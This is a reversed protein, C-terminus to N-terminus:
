KQLLLKTKLVAAVTKADQIEGAMVQAFLQDFPVRERELFEDEDPHCDGPTLDQALYMHLIEDTFGPSALLAGMYTLKGPVYGTEEELERLACIRHEENKDLKGAPIETIIKGFPYRFQRVVTVTGDQHLPLVAVGGPHYVVERSASKGDPLTIQDLHVDIIHGKFLQQGSVKHEVLDM